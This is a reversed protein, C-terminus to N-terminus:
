ARGSGTVSSCSAARSAAARPRWRVEADQDAAVGLALELLDGGHEVGALLRADAFQTDGYTEKGQLLSGHSGDSGPRRHLQNVPM